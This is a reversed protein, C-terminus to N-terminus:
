LASAVGWPIPPPRRSQRSLSLLEADEEKERMRLLIEQKLLKPLILFWKLGRELELGEDAAQVARLVKAVGASWIERMASPIDQMTPFEYM